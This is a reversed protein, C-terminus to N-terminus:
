LKLVKNLTNNFVETTLYTDYVYKANEQMKMHQEKNTHAIRKILNDDIKNPIEFGCNYKAIFEKTDGSINNLLPLSFKFYVLSKMTLGVVINGKMMNIAYHCKSFIKFQEVEDYIIGYYTYDISNKRLTEELLNLNEGAGVIHLHVKKKTSLKSLLDCIGTIDIINNISGLSLIDLQEFDLENTPYSEGTSCLRLVHRKNDPLKKPLYSNFYNCELLVDTAKTVYKNRLYKWYIIPPFIYMLNNKFPLSEPWIDMLDFYLKTNPNKFKSFQKILSNAPAIVYIINYESINKSVFNKADKAFKMHSLIRRISLNSKYHRTSLRTFKDNKHIRSKKFHDFDTSVYDVAIGKLELLHGVTLARSEFTTFCTIIVARNQM